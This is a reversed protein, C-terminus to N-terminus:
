NAKLSKLAIPKSGAPPTFDYSVNGFKSWNYTVSHQPRAEDNLGTIVVKCPLPQNGKAVWLQWDVGPQRYAYHTCTKGGITEDGVTAASTIKALQGKDTGWTFLDTLPLEMGYRNELDDVLEHITAPAPVTAYYGTQKSYLTVTKGNYFLERDSQSSIVRSFLHNPRQASLEIKHSFQIAQGDTLVRDTTSDATLQIQNLGRLYAGMNTLANLAQQKDADDTNQAQVPGHLMLAAILAAACPALRRSM